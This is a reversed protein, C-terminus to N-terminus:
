QMLAFDRKLSEMTIVFESLECCKNVLDLNQLFMSLVSKTRSKERNQWSKNFIFLEKGKEMVLRLSRCTCSRLFFSQFFEHFMKRELKVLSTECKTFNINRFYCSYIKWSQHQQGNGNYFNREDTSTVYFNIHLFHIKAEYLACQANVYIFCSIAKALTCM